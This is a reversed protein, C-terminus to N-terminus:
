SAHVAHVGGGAACLGPAEWARRPRGARVKASVSQCFCESPGLAQRGRGGAPSPRPSPAARARRERDPSSSPTRARRATPPPSSRLAPPPARLASRSRVRRGGGCLPAALARARIRAGGTRLLLGQGAGRRLLTPARERQRAHRAYAAARAAARGRVGRAVGAPRRHPLPQARAHVATVSGNLTVSAAAGPAGAVAYEVEVPKGWLEVTAVLGNMAPPIVPDVTLTRAAARLGLFSRVFIAIFIGPAAPTSAGAAKSRCAAPSRTTTAATPRTATPSPPTPAASTATPRARRPAPCTSACRSPIPRACPTSSPARCRRPARADPCVAPARAHVHHRDRPRLLLQERRAPLPAAPRRPLRAAPRVPARRGPRASARGDARRAPAGARAHAHRRADAHMMPLLSYRVGTAATARTCCIAEPQRDAPRQRWLRLRGRRRRRMLLRQFDDLVGRRPRASARRRRGARGASRLAHALATLTQHHLTVTWASCLRERLAPDAPQLADNWDGHGYAALHTGAVQRGAIVGLAREVHTWVTHHGPRATSPCRVDLLGADGSADLYRALGLLPWFVIDGHSDPARIDRERDFFMFWQPWDGDPNQAAFVRLLLERVARPPGARAADRAPGPVRRAHGLRRRFVAGARAARPLARARRPRVVAPHRRLQAIDDAAASGAPARLAPLPLTSAEPAQQAPVLGAALRLGFSPSAAGDICVFRSSARAAMKSSASTAASATSARATSRSSRSRRRPPFARRARHRSRHGRLRGRRRAVLAGRRTRQRRRRRAGRPAHRAAAAARGRARARAARARAARGRGRQASRAPRRRAPLALPLPRAGDRVRVARGAPALGRATQVFVRQGHSRFLGLYSRTTSLLRNIGVHGQTVMSHFVGAMWVTSTLATEDPSLARGTRLM